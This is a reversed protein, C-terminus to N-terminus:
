VRLSQFTIMGEVYKLRFIHPDVLEQGFEFKM